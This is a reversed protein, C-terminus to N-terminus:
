LTLTTSELVLWASEMGVEQTITGSLQWILLAAMKSWARFLSVTEEQPEKETTRTSLSGWSFLGQKDVPLLRSLTNITTIYMLLPMSLSSSPAERFALSVGGKQWGRGRGWLHAPGLPLTSSWPRLGELLPPARLMSFCPGKIVECCCGQTVQKMGSSNKGWGLGM